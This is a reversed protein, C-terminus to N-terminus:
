IQRPSFSEDREYNHKTAAHYHTQLLSAPSLSMPWSKKMEGKRLYDWINGPRVKWNHDILATFTHEFCLSYKCRLANWLDSLPLLAFPGDKLIYKKRKKGRLVQQDVVSSPPLFLTFFFFFFINSLPKKKLLLLLVQQMGSKFNSLQNATKCAKKKFTQIVSNIM